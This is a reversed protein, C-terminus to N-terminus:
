GGARDSARPRAERERRGEEAEQLESISKEGEVLRDHLEQVRGATDTLVLKQESAERSAARIDEHILGLEQKMALQVDAVHAVARILWDLKASDLAEPEPPPPLTDANESV